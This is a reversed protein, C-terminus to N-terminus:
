KTKSLRSFWKTVFSQKEHPHYDYGLAWLTFYVYLLWIANGVILLGSSPLLKFEGLQATSVSTGYTWVAILLWVLPVVVGFAGSVYQALVSLRMRMLFPLACVEAFVIGSGLWLTLTRDSGLAKSLEPIFTDIRFLHIVAFVIMIGAAIWGLTAGRPHRLKPAPQSVPLTYKMVGLIASKSVAGYHRSDTSRAPNDGSLRVKDGSIATVRKIVERGDVMVAVIDGVDYRAGSLCVVVQGPCLTPLM